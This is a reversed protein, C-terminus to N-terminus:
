EVCRTFTYVHYRVLDRGDLTPIREVEVEFSWTYCLGFDETTDVIKSEVLPMLDYDIVELTNNNAFSVM